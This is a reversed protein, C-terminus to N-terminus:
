SNLPTWNAIDLRSHPTLHEHRALQEYAPRTQRTLRKLAALSSHLQERYLVIEDIGRAFQVRTRPLAQRALRKLEEASPSEPTALICLSDEDTAGLLTPEAEQYAALLAQSVGAEDLIQGEPAVLWFQNMYLHVADAPPLRDHLFFQTEELMQPILTRLLTSSGMCVHVLARFQKRILKEIQHDLVFLEEAPIQNLAQEVANDITQCGEPLLLQSAPTSASRLEPDNNEERLKADLETLRGRCFDVERLQDSLQGRLSVYFSNVHQLVLSQFRCKPYAHVAELLERAHLGPRSTSKRTLTALWSSDKGNKKSPQEVLTHIKAYLAAAREELERCLDEQSELARQVVESFQRLTEEAGALRFEPQEILRVVLEAIRGESDNVLAAVASQLLDGLQGPPPTQGTRNLPGQWGEPVGLQKDMEELVEVVRGLSLFSVASDRGAKGNKSNAMNALGLSLPELVRGLLSIPDHGLSQQSFEQLREILQNASLGLEAWQTHVWQRVSERLPRADKNKWHQVLKQCLRASTHHLIQKYPWRIRVLDSSQYIM